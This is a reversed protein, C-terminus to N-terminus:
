PIVTSNDLRMPIVEKSRLLFLVRQDDGECCAVLKNATFVADGALQLPDSLQEQCCAGPYKLLVDIIKPIAL